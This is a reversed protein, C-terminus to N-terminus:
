PCQTEFDNNFMDYDIGDVFGDGNYDAIIQRNPDASEFDNNFLDSDIGDVFGDGNYDAPCPHGEVQGRIEGGGKFSSHINVYSLGNLIGTVQAATLTGTGQATGSTGITFTFQIMPSSNVGRASLGHLHANNSTGVLNEFYAHCEVFRTVTDVRAVGHGTATTTVPPVEQAGEMTYRFTVIDASASGALTLGLALAFADKLM